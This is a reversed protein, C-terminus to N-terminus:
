FSISHNLIIISLKSVNGIKRLISSTDYDFISVFKGVVHKGHIKVSFVKCAEM